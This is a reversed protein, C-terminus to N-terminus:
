SNEWDCDTSASESLMTAMLEEQERTMRANERREYEDEVVRHCHSKIYEGFIDMALEPTLEFEMTKELSRGRVSFTDPQVIEARLTAKTEGLILTGSLCDAYARWTEAAAPDLPYMEPHSKKWDDEYQCKICVAESVRQRFKWLATSGIYIRRSSQIALMRAVQAYNM